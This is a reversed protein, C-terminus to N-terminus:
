LATSKSYMYDNGKSNCTENTEIMEHPSLASGTLGVEMHGRRSIFSIESM